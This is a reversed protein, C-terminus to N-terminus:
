QVKPQRGQRRQRLIDDLGGGAQPTTPTQQATSGRGAGTTNTSQPKAAFQQKVEDAIRQIQVWPDELETGNLWDNLSKQVKIEYNLRNNFAAIAMSRTLPDTGAALDAEIQKLKLPQLEKRMQLEERRIGLGERSISIRADAQKFRPDQRLANMREEFTLDFRNKKGISQAYADLTEDGQTDNTFVQNPPVDALSLRLRGMPNNLQNLDGQGGSAVAGAAGGGSGDIIGRLGRLMPLRENLIQNEIGTQAANANNVGIQSERLPQNADFQRQNEALQAERSAVQEQALFDNIDLQRGQNELMENARMRTYLDELGKSAGAGTLLGTYGPM